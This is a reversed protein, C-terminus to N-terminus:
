KKKKLINALVNEEEKESRYLRIVEPLFDSTRGCGPDIKYIIELYTDLAIIGCEKEVETAYCALERLMASFACM